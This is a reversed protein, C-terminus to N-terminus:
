LVKLRIMVMGVVVVTSGGSGLAPFESMPNGLLDSTKHGFILFSRILSKNLFFAIRVCFILSESM